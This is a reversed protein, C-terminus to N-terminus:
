EPVELVEEKKETTLSKEERIKQRIAEIEQMTLEIIGSVVGQRYCLQIIADKEELLNNKYVIEAIPTELETRSLTKDQLIRQKINM